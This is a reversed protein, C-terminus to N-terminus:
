DDIKQKIKTQDGADADAVCVSSVSNDSNDEVKNFLGLAGTLDAISDNAALLNVGQVNNDCVNVPVAVNNESVNILGGKNESGEVKNLDKDTIHKDGERHIKVKDGEHFHKDGEHFHKDGERKKDHDDHHSKSHSKDRHDDGKDGAFALPSVALLGATAAAVVIGAKKLV